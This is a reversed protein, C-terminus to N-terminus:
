AEISLGYPRSTDCYREVERFCKHVSLKVLSMKLKALVLLIRADSPQSSQGITYKVKFVSFRNLLAHFDANVYEPGIAHNCRQVGGLGEVQTSPRLM